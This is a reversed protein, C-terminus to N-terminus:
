EPRKLVSFTTPKAGLFRLVEVIARGTPVSTRPTTTANPAPPKRPGMMRRRHEVLLLERAPDRAHQATCWRGSMAKVADGAHAAGRVDGDYCAVAPVGGRTVVGSVTKRHLRCISPDPIGTVTM